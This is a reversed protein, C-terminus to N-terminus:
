SRRGGPHPERTHAITDRIVHPSTPMPLHTFLGRDACIATVLNGTM